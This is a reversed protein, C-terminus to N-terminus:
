PLFPGEIPPDEACFENVIRMWEEYPMRNYPFRDFWTSAVFSYRIDNIKGGFPQLYPQVWDRAAIWPVVGQVVFFAEDRDRPVPIYIRKKDDKDKTYRWNDTHRDWDGVLVDLCRAKLFAKGDFSYDNDDYMNRVADLTSTSKGTPEREELLCVKNVLLPLFKGLAKDPSVVGIVPNAHPVRAAEALPPIILAGFPPQASIGDILLERAFTQRLEVPLIKAPDKEVSRLVWEKGTPDVLRLSTTQQGGGQKEPTLGGHLESIRFVPLKVAAAWDKRYNEGFFFRHVGSVKDYQEHVKVVIGDQTIPKIDNQAKSIINCSILSLALFIKKM